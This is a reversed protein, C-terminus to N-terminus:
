KAGSIELAEAVGWLWCWSFIRGTNENQITEENWHVVIYFHLFLTLSYLLIMEREVIRISGPIDPNLFDTLHSDLSFLFTKYDKYLDYVM